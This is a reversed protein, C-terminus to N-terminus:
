KRTAAWIIGGLVAAGGVGIGVWAVTSLGSTPPPEYYTEQPIFADGSSTTPTQPRIQDVMTTMAARKAQLEGVARDIIYRSPVSGTYTSYIQQEEPKEVRGGGRRRALLDLFKGEDATITSNDKLWTLAALLRFETKNLKGTPDTAQPDLLVKEWDMAGPAVKKSGDPNLVGQAVLKALEEATKEGLATMVKGAGSAGGTVTSIGPLSSVESKATPPRAGIIYSM